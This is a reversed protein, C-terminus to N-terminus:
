IFMRRPLVSGVRPPSRAAAALYSADATCPDSPARQSFLKVGNSHEWGGARERGEGTLLPVSDEMAGCLKEHAIVACLPEVIQVKLRAAENQRGTLNKM